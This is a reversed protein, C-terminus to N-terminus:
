LFQTINKIISNFFFISKSITTDFLLSVIGSSLFNRFLRLFLGLALDFPFKWAPFREHVCFFIDYSSQSARSGCQM